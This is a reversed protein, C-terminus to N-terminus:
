YTLLYLSNNYGKDFYYSWSINKVNKLIATWILNLDDLTTKKNGKMIALIKNKGKIKNIIISKVLKLDTENDYQIKYLKCNLKEDFFSNLESTELRMLADSNLATKIVRTCENRLKSSKQFKKITNM